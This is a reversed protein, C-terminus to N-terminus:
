RGRELSRVTFLDAQAGKGIRRDSYDIITRHQIRFDTMTMRNWRWINGVQTANSGELRKILTNSRGFFDIRGILLKEPDVFLLKRGYSTTEQANRPKQEIMSYQHGAIVVSGVATYAYSDIKDASVDEFAFDTGMYRDTRNSAPIKRSAHYAPLYLWQDDAGGSREITLVGSGDMEPPASFRILRSSTSAGPSIQRQFYGAKRERVKGAADVLHMSMTATEESQTSQNHVRRVLDIAGEARASPVSVVAGLLAFAVVLSNRM